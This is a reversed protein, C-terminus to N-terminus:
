VALPLAHYDDKDPVSQMHGARTLPRQGPTQKEPSPRVIIITQRFDAALLNWARPWRDSQILSRLTLLAQGGALTWAMGSRKLRQTVLTKCAAEVVGSAIPLNQRLYEPYNMRRAQNRFYTLEARLRRQRNGTSRGAHHKFTRIIRDTGGDEEKLLTKLRLFEAQSRPTSEGWIADCGNKLHDCAHYFDVVEIRTEPSLRLEREIEALLKWNPEAGDALHVRRLDPRLAFIAQTEGQLEAQLTVKKSEPMRAYRVTQLREGAEDYLSLTGCGAEQHGAPGSAHKGAAAQKAARNAAKTKMAVMVGDVSLAVSVAAELVTEQARLAVEWDDRKAEWHSSVERPLRDLSSRSPRMGGLEAFMAEGEGPTLHATVFTGQRAARPTWYGNVIGVRLELPCISKANHGAPRYLHREVGVEGAATLYTETDVWVPHYAIGGVEIQEADVDYRALEATLLECELAMVQEHLEREFQEFNPTGGQWAQQHARVFQGLRRLAPSELRDDKHSVEM